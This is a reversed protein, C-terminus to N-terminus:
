TFDMAVQAGVNKPNILETKAMTQRDGSYKCYM